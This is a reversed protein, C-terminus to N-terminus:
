RAAIPAVGLKRAAGIDVIRFEPAAPDGFREAAATYRALGEEAAAEFNALTTNGGGQARDAANGLRTTELYAFERGEADLAFALFMHGPVLVLQPDLDIRRLVSALLVSGDVCNAQRNDWSEDLFRVYQSLVADSAASTRTISSYRIGRRALVQWIAFVQRYVQEPDGSQYGDFRKVTGAKLADGLIRQVLPHEEDVYAAFIWSLDTRQGGDEVSYPADNVSRVRVRQSRRVPPHGDLELAFEITEPMARRVGHLRKWDWLMTPYVQYWDGARPLEVEISSESGLAPARVVVRARQGDRTAAVAVGVMGNTDGLVRGDSASGGISLNATAILLSPFVQTDPSVIPRWRPQTTPTNAPASSSGAAVAIALLFMALPAFVRM